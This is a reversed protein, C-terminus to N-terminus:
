HLLLQQKGHIILTIKKFIFAKNGYNAGVVLWNDTMALSIGFYETNQNFSTGAGLSIIQSLSCLPMWVLLLLLLIKM